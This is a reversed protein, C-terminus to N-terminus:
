QIMKGNQKSICNSVPVMLMVLFLGLFGPWGLRTVLLATAGVAYIPFSFCSLFTALRM